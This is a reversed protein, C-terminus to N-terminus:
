CNDMEVVIVNAKSLNIKLAINMADYFGNLTM